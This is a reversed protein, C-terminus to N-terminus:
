CTIIQKYKIFSSFIEADSTNLVPRIIDLATQHVHIFDSSIKIFNAMEFDNYSVDINLKSKEYEYSNNASLIQLKTSFDFRPDSVLFSMKFDYVFLYNNKIDLKEIDDILNICGDLIYFKEINKSKLYKDIFYNLM